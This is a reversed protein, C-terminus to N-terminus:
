FEALHGDVVAFYKRRIAILQDFRQDRRAEVHSFARGDDAQVPKISLVPYRSGARPGSLIRAVTKCEFRRDFRYGVTGILEELQKFPIQVQGAQLRDQIEKHLSSQVAPPRTETTTLM